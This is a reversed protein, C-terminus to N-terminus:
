VCTSGTGAQHLIVIVKVFEDFEVIEAQSVEVKKLLTHIDNYQCEPGIKQVAPVLHHQNFV